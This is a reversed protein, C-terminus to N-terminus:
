KGFYLWWRSVSRMIKDEKLRKIKNNNKAYTEIQSQVLTDSKLEPYLSVVTMSSEAKFKDFTENEYKMYNTVLEDIQSEIKNNEQQYMAIKDEIASSGIVNGILFPLAILSIVLFILGFGGIVWGLGELLGDCEETMACGIVFFVICLVFILVLM